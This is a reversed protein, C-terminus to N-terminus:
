DQPLDDSESYHIAQSFVGDKRRAGRETKCTSRPWNQITGSLWPTKPTGPRPLQQTTSPASRSMSVLCSDTATDISKIVLDVASKNEPSFGVELTSSEVVVTDAPCRVVGLAAIAIAAVVVRGARRM